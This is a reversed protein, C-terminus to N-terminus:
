KSMKYYRAVHAITKIQEGVSSFTDSVATHIISTNIFSCQSHLGALDGPIEPLIWFHRTIELHGPITFFDGPISPIQNSIKNQALFPFKHRIYAFHTDRGVCIVSHPTFM